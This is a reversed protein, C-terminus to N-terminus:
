EWFDLGKQTLIWGIKIDNTRYPNKLYSSKHNYIVFGAEMADYLADMDDFLYKLYDEPTKFWSSPNQIM